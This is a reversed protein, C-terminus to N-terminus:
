SENGWSDGFWDLDDTDGAPLAGLVFSAAATRIRQALTIQKGAQLCAPYGRYPIFGYTRGAHVVVLRNMYDLIYALAKGPAHVRDCRLASQGDHNAAIM